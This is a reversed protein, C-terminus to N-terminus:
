LGFVIDMLRMQRQVELRVVVNSRQYQRHGREWGRMYFARDWSDIKWYGPTKGAQGAERGTHYSALAIGGFIGCPLGGLVFAVLLLEGWM